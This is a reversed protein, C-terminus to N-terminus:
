KLCYCIFVHQLGENIDEFLYLLNLVSRYPEKEFVEKEDPKLKMIYSRLQQIKLYLLYLM